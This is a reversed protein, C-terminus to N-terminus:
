ERRGRACARADERVEFVTVHLCPSDHTTFLVYRSNRYSHHPKNHPIKSVFSTYDTLIVVPNASLMRNLLVDHLIPKM